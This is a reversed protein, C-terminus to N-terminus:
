RSEFLLHAAEIFKALHSFARGTPAVDKEKIKLTNSLSYTLWENLTSKWKHMKKFHFFDDIITVLHKNRVHRDVKGQERMIWVADILKILCEHMYILNAPHDAAKWLDTESLMQEWASLAPHLNEINIYYTGFTSLLSLPQRICERSLHTPHNRDCAYKMEKCTLLVPFAAPGKSYIKFGEEILESLQFFDSAINFDAISFYEYKDNTMYSADLAIQLYTFLDCKSFGDYHKNYHNSLVTVGGGGKTPDEAAEAEGFRFLSSLEDALHNAAYRNNTIPMPSSLEPCYKNVLWLVDLLRAADMCLSYLDAPDHLKWENEKFLMKLLSWLDQQFDTPKRRRYLEGLVLYPDSIEKRKLFSIHPRYCCFKSYKM